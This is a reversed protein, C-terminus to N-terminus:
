FKGNKMLYEIYDQGYALGDKEYLNMTTEDKGPTFKYGKSKFFKIMKDYDVIDHEPDDIYFPEGTLAQLYFLMKINEARTGGVVNELEEMNIRNMNTM